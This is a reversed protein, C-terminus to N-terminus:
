GWIKRELRLWMREIFMVFRLVLSARELILLDEVFLLQEESPEGLLSLLKYSGDEGVVIMMGGSLVRELSEVEDIEEKM